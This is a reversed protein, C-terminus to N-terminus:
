PHMRLVVERVVGIVMLIIAAIAAWKTMIKQQGNLLLLADERAKSAKAAALRDEEAKKAIAMREIELRDWQESKVREVAVRMVDQSIEAVKAVDPPPTSKNKLEAVVREGIEQSAHKTLDTSSGMEARMKPLPPALGGERIENQWVELRGIRIGHAEQIVRMEEQDAIIGSLTSTYGAAITAYATAMEHMSLLVQEISAGEQLTKFEKPLATMDPRTIKRDSSM